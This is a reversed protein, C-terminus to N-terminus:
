SIHQTGRFGASKLKQQQKSSLKTQQSSLTAALVFIFVLALIRLNSFSFFFFLEACKM